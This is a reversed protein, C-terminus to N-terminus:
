RKKPKKKIPKWTCRRHRNPINERLQLRASRISQAQQRVDLQGPRAAEQGSGLPHQLSGGSHAPRETAGGHLRGDALRRGARGNLWWDLTLQIITIIWHPYTRPSPLPSPLQRTVPLFNQLPIAIGAITASEPPTLWSPNLKNQITEATWPPSSHGHWHIDPRPKM